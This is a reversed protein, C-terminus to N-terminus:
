EEEILSKKIEEELLETDVRTDHCPGNPRMNEIGLVPIKGVDIIGSLLDRNCAVSIILKPKYDIVAKRALTGGTAVVINLKYKETISMISGIDCKGCRKCNYPNGTIKYICESNQLCHPVLILIESNNCKIDRSYTMINNLDIFFSRLKSKDLKLIQAIQLLIPALLKLLGQFIKAAKKNTKGKKYAKQVLLIFSISFVLYIIVILGLLVVITNYATEQKIIITLFLLSLIVILFAIFIVVLKIFVSYKEKIYEM